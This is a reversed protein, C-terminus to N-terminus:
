DSTSFVGRSSFSCCWGKLGLLELQRRNNELAIKASDIDVFLGFCSPGSGSMAYSIVGKLSSLFDLSKEVAPTLPGVVKQLDNRLPPPYSSNLSPKLWSSDRLLQRRKEFEKENCLYGKFNKEKYKSYAWPTSVSVLPDKVLLVALHGEAMGIPELAEGKGFCFQTGGDLCFPIDSGLKAAMDKLENSSCGIGWLKNLGVLTAAADSSGGALGAGIPINKKLHIKAGLENEPKYISIIQAARLILNDKNTSLTQDDSTLIVEGKNTKLFNIEDYLSISQMLMALEHFGDKRLGLVELHLNIKAPAFVKLFEATKFSSSHLVMKLQLRKFKGLGQSIGGM